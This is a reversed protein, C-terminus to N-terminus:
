EAATRQGAQLVERAPGEIITGKFFDPNTSGHLEVSNAFTFDRMDDASIFGHEMLEYSEALCETADIVDWHGIDSSFIAKLRAGMRNLKTDFAWPIM